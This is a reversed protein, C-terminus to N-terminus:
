FSFQGGFRVYRSSQITLPQMWTRTLPNASFATSVTMVTGANLLNYVDVMGQVRYRGFRFMKTVRMDLQNIYDLFMTNPEVLNVTINNTGGASVIGTAAYNASVSIGPRMGFFGSVQFDYPLPYAGIVKFVARYPNVTDCFRFNNPDSRVDCTGTDLQEMTIGALVFGGNTLRAMGNLDFGNYVRKNITTFTRINDVTNLSPNPDRSYVTIPFGGGDPLRPDTPATIVRESWNNLTLNLNQTLALNDFTRRHYGGTLSVREFLEHQVAVNYEWNNERKLDPDLRDTAQSLGFQPNGGTIENRQLNGAADVISRNGDLDTWTRTDTSATLTNFNEAFGLAASAVYKAANVKL